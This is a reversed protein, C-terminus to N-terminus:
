LEGANAGTDVKISGLSANNSRYFLYNEVFGNLNGYSNASVGPIGAYGQLDFGGQGLDNIQNVSVGLRQPYGYYAYSGNPVTLNFTQDLSNSTIRNIWDSGTFGGATLSENTSVGYLFSNVFSFTITKTSATTGGNAEDNGTAILNIQVSGAVGATISVAGPAFTLGGDSLINAYVPFGSGQNATNIYMGATLAPGNVLDSGYFSSANLSYSQNGILIPNSISSSFSGVSFIFDTPKFVDYNRIYDFTLSGDAALMAIKRATGTDTGLANNSRHSKTTNATTFNVSGRVSATSGAGIAIHGGFTIGGSASLGTTFRQLGVTYTNSENRRAILDTVTLTINGTNGGDANLATIEGKAGELSTVGINKIVVYGTAGSIAIGEGGSIGTVGNAIQQYTDSISVHGTGSVTFFTSNFSAVGTLSSTAVRNDITVTNGSTSVIQSPGGAVVTQGTIQYAGTLSVAGNEGVTFYTSNFSAVGTLSTSALRADIINNGRGVLAGAGTMSVNGTLGNFGTVGINNVTVTNGSVVTNIGYGSVVTQGTVQYAGTLSVAGNEGVTFYTSNFSAVGTLSTSALRATIRVGDGGLAGSDGTVVTAGPLTYNGFPDPASGNITKVAGTLGVHGTASITFNASNFSAVGTVSASAFKPSYYSSIPAYFHDITSDLPNYDPHNTDKVIFFGNDISANNLDQLNAIKPKAGSALQTEDIGGVKVTVHGTGSVAFDDSSFSAVGTLSTSANRVGIKNNDYGFLAGAGTMSVNGTLGNFGTVGTNNVTVSNGDRVIGIGYGSSITDGTISQPGVGVVGTQFWQNEYRIYNRFPDNAPGTALLLRDGTYGSASFGGPVPYSEGSFFNRATGQTSGDAFQLVVGSGLVLKKSTNDFLLGSSGSLSGDTARFQVSWEQGAAGTLSGSGIAVWLSPCANVCPAGGQYVYIKNDYKNFVVIGESSKANGVDIFTKWSSSGRQVISGCYFKASKVSEGNILASTSLTNWSGGNDVIYKAGYTSVFAGGSSNYRSTDAGVIGEVTFDINASHVLPFYGSGTVNADRNIQEIIDAFNIPM